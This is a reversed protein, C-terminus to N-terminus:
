IWSSININNDFDIIINSKLIRLYNSVGINNLNPFRLIIKNNEFWATYSEFDSINETSQCEQNTTTQKKSSRRPQERRLIPSTVATTM